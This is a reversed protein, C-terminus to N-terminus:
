IQGRMRARRRKYLRHALLILGILALDAAFVAAAMPLSDEGTAATMSGAFFGLAIFSANWISVGLGSWLAIPGVPHGIVGAPFTAFVRITPIIQMVLMAPGGEAAILRRAREYNKPTLAIWRGHKETWRRVGAEPVLVGLRYWILCGLLSGLASAAIGGGLSYVGQAGLVGIVVLTVYSPVFPIFREITMLLLIAILGGAEIWQAPDIAM